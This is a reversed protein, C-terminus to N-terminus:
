DETNPVADLEGDEDELTITHWSRGDRAILAEASQPGWTGAAYNPFDLSPVSTWTRLIPDVVKWAFHEQDDRMFLSNDGQIVDYLLTEYAEPTQVNFSKAYDFEMSVTRLQMGTGPQKAQFRIVIGEEPQINIILRNPEWHEAATPPFARHPVQKFEISVQSIKRAL